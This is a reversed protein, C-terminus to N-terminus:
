DSDDRSVDTVVNVIILIVLVLAFLLTSLAYMHPKIGKKLEGYVMTSLTNISPGKTFYTIMFDDMSMTVAMLFGSLVGPMIEPLIVKFFARVPSAGLDLAAEYQAAQLQKFRPLVNLIVYPINFTIHGILVSVFGLKMIKMLLLLLAIGTVIDANLIPINTVSTFFKKMKSNCFNIGMAAPVGIVVAITASLLAIVITNIFAEQITKSEFITKYWKLTFGGWKVRSKSNNFSLVILVGIPLYLLLFVFVLYAKEFFRKVM